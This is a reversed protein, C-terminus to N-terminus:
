LTFIFKNFPSIIINYYCKKIIKNIIKILHNLLSDSVFTILLPDEYQKRRYEFVEDIEPKTYNETKNRKSSALRRKM